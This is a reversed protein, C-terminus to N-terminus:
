GIVPNWSINALGEPAQGVGPFRAFADFRGPQGGDALFAGTVGIVDLTM